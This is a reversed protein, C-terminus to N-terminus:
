RYKQRLADCPLDSVFGFHHNNLRIMILKGAKCLHKLGRWVGGWLVGHHRFRKNPSGHPFASIVAETTKMEDFFGEKRLILLSSCYPHAGCGTSDFGPSIQWDADRRRKSKIGNCTLCQRYNKRVGKMHAINEKTYLHGYPCATKKANVAGLGLGRMINEKPTVAQLHQPNVCPRVGCLHDLVKGSPIPGRYTVYSFRHAMASRAGAATHEFRGYGGITVTGMWIWCTPTKYVHLLFRQEKTIGLLGRSSPILLTEGLFYAVLGSRFAQAKPPYGELIVRDDVKVLPRAAFGRRGSVTVMGDSYSFVLEDGVRLKFRKMLTVPVRISGVGFIVCRYPGTGTVLAKDPRHSTM